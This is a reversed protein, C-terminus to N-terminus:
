PHLSYEIKPYIGVKYCKYRPGRPLHQHRDLKHWKDSKHSYARASSEGKERKWGAQQVEKIFRSIEEMQIYGKAQESTYSTWIALLNKACAIWSSALDCPWCCPTYPWRLISIGLKSPSEVLGIWSNKFHSM